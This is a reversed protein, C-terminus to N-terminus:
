LEEGDFSKYKPPNKPNGVDNQSQHLRQRRSGKQMPNGLNDKKPM